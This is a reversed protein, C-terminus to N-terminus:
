LQSPKSASLVISSGAEPHFKLALCCQWSVMMFTLSSGLFQINVFPAISTLLVAGASLLVLKLPQSQWLAPVHCPWGLAGRM